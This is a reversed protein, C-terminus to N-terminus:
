AFAPYYRLNPVVAEKWMGELETIVLCRTIAGDILKVKFNFNDNFSGYILANV